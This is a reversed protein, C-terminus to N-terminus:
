EMVKPPKDGPLQNLSAVSTRPMGLDASTIAM